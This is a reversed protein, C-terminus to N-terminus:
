SVQVLGISPPRRTRLRRRFRVVSQRDRACSLRRSMQSHAECVRWARFSHRLPAGAFAPSTQV